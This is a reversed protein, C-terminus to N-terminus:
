WNELDDETSWRGDPGASYLDFDPNMARRGTRYRFPTGWADVMQEPKAGRGSPTVMKMSNITPDLESVYPKLRGGGQRSDPRGDLGGGEGDDDTNLIGDPGVGDQFLVKYIVLGTYDRGASPQPYSGVDAYYRELGNELLAMQARTKEVAAKRQVWGMAGVTIASLIVIVAVVTLLEVITFGRSKRSVPANRPDM